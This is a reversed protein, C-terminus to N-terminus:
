LIHTTQSQSAATNMSVNDVYTLVNSLITWPVGNSQLAIEAKGQHSLNSLHIDARTFCFDQILKGINSTTDQITM